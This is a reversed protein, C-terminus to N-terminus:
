VKTLLYNIFLLKYNSLIEKKSNEGVVRHWISSERVPKKSSSSLHRRLLSQVGDSVWRERVCFERV